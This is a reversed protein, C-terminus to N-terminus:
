DCFYTIEKHNEFLELFNARCNASKQRSLQSSKRCVIEQSPRNYLFHPIFVETEM